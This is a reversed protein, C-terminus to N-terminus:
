DDNKSKKTKKAKQAAAVPHLEKDLDEASLVLDRLAVHVTRQERTQDLFLEAPALEVGKDGKLQELLQIGGQSYYLLEDEASRLQIM